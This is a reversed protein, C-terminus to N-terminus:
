RLYISDSGAKLKNFFKSYYLIYENILKNNLDTYSVIFDDEKWFCRNDLNKIKTLINNNKNNHFHSYSNIEFQPIIIIKDKINDNKNYLNILSQQSCSINDKTKIIEELFNISENSVNWIVNRTSISTMDTTLYCIADKIFYKDIINEIRIDNNTIISTEDTVFIYKHKKKKMIELLIDLKYWEDINKKQRFFFDYIHKKCYDQKQLLLKKYINFNDKESVSIFAIQFSNLNITPIIKKFENSLIDHIKLRSQIVLYFNKNVKEHFLKIIEDNDRRRITSYFIGKHNYNHNIKYNENLLKNKLLYGIFLTYESCMENIVLDYVDLDNLMKTVLKTKFIFPTQNSMLNTNINLCKNVRNTWSDVKNKLYIYASNNCYFHELNFTKTFIIDSDLTVYFDSKIFNAIYLKLYMQLYYTKKINSVDLMTNENILKFKKDVNINGINMYKEIINLLSSKYIIIFEYDFDEKFYNFSPILLEFVLKTDFQTGIPLVFTIM